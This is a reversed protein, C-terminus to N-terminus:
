DHQLDHCYSMKLVSFIIELNLKEMHRLLM